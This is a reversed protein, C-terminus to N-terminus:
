LFLHTSNKFMKAQQKSKTGQDASTNQYDGFVQSLKQSQVLFIMVKNLQEIKEWLHGEQWFFFFFSLLSRTDGVFQSIQEKKDLVHRLKWAVKSEDTVDLM